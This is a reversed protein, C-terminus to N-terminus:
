RRLGVWLDNVNTGTPGMRVLRQRTELYPHAARRALADAAGDGWDSGLCWAGSDPTTGDIGDSAFCAVLAADLGAAHLAGAAALAAHQNRGGAPADKPMTVTPEGGGVLAVRNGDLGALASVFAQAEAEADGVIRPVHRYVSWGLSALRLGAAAVIEHNSALVRLPIRDPAWFAASGVAEPHDPVTDQILWTRIRGTRSLLVEALKGDKLASTEARRRNMEEVPLGMAFLERWRALLTEETWGPAPVEICASSGGSVLILLPADKELRGAWELVRRGAAFSAPGPLPHDGPLWEFTDVGPAAVGVPAVGIGAFPVGAEVLGWLMRPAAKGVALVQIREPRERSGLWDDLWGQRVARRVIPTPEVAAIGALYAEVAEEALPHGALPPHTDPM